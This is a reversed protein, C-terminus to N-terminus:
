YGMGGESERGRAVCMCVCVCVCVCVWVCVCVCVCVRVCRAGCGCVGVCVWVRVSETNKRWERQFFHPASCEPHHCVAQGTLLQGAFVGVCEAVWRVGVG